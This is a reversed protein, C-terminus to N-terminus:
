FRIATKTRFFPPLVPPLAPKFAPALIIDGKNRVIHAVGPADSEFRGSRRSYTWVGDPCQVFGIVRRHLELQAPVACGMLFQEHTITLEQRVGDFLAIIIEDHVPQLLEYVELNGAVLKIEMPGKPISIGASGFFRTFMYNSYVFRRMIGFVEIPREAVSQPM